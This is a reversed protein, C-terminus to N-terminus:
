RKGSTAPPATVGEAAVVPYGRRHWEDIGEDLVVAHEYGRKRLEDTVIGSLHHPCACYSVIWTGDKPVDGLRHMDYYPISVAGAIHVRRWESAPRADIIVIRQKADVAKKVQDVGVFRGDKLKFAPQAGKADLIIPDQDTPEPLLKQAPQTKGTFNRIYAVLDGIDQDALKSGWADM